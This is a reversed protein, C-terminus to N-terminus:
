DKPIINYQRVYSPRNDPEAVIGLFDFGDLIISRCQGYVEEDGEQFPRSCIKFIRGLALNITAAAEQKDNFKPTM